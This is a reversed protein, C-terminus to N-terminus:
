INKIFKAPIGAVITNAEVNNLVISGAGIIAGDGITIDGIIISNPYIKVNNGIIPYKAEKYNDTDKAGITVNQYIVCNNGLVVKQGIVVGIPHPFITKKDFVYKIGRTIHNNLGIRINKYYYISCVIQNLFKLFKRFDRVLQKM